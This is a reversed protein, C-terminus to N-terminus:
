AKQFDAALTPQFEIHQHTIADTTGGRLDLLKIQQGDAVLQHLVVGNSYVGDNGVLRALHTRAVQRVALIQRLEVAVIQAKCLLHHLTTGVVVERSATHNDASRCQRLVFYITRHTHIAANEVIRKHNPALVLSSQKLSRQAYRELEVMGLHITSVSRFEKVSQLSLNFFQLRLQNQSIPVVPSGVTTDIRPYKPVRVGVYICCDAIGANDAVLKSIDIVALIESTEIAPLKYLHSLLYPMGVM